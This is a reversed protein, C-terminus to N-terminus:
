GPKKGIAALSLHVTLGLGRTSKPQSQTNRQLYFLDIALQRNLTRTLGAQARNQNWRDLGFQYFVEDNAFIQIKPAVKYALELKQRYRYPNGPISYLREGRSRERLAFRGFGRGLSVAALPANVTYGKGTNPLGAYIYGASLTLFSNVRDDAVIGLGGLQPNALQLSSRDIGLITLSAANSIKANLDLESWFEVDPPQQADASARAACLIVFLVARPM